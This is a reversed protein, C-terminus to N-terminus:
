DSRGGPKDGVAPILYNRILQQPIVFESDPINGTIVVVLDKEPFVYIFQGKTGHAAYPGDGHVWWLYGYDLDWPELPDPVQFYRQSSSEVWDKPLIQKGEWVGERLYLYGIKAMDRPTLALGWGGNPYGDIARGWRYETIGLPGFLYQDAFEQTDTRCASAILASLVHPGGNSYFWTTGPQHIVPQDLTYQVWDPHSVMEEQDWYLGSSMTLLHRITIWRKWEDLNKFERELFYDLVPDNIDAICGEEIAIGVLISIISKTISYSEHLTDQGYVPYYREAVIVGQYVVVIGDLNIGTTDIADLMGQVQGPDMGVKEPPVVEWDETPWPECNSRCSAFAVFLISILIVQIRDNQKKQSM